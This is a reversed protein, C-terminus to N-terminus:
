LMRQCQLSSGILSMADHHRVSPLTTFLHSLTAPAPELCQVLDERLQVPRAAPAALRKLPARDQQQQATAHGGALAGHAFDDAMIVEPGLYRGM